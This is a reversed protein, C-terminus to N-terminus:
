NRKFVPRIKNGKLFLDPSGQQKALAVRTLGANVGEIYKELDNETHMLCFNNIGLTLVGKLICEQQFLSLWDSSDIGNINKFVIGSHPALGATRVDSSLNKEAILNNVSHIWKQGLTWIHQFSEKQEFLSITALASAISLTEGGFTMSIFAGEDILKMIDSAGTVLSLPMGNAIGKGFTALDPTVNYYEQAGGLSLRFGTVIEDFIILAGNKHALDKVKQLFNDKPPELGIPEMIVAAIQQPYRDFLTLLSNINNYKFKKTLKGIAKPVGRNRNTSAIYWDQYGHYGCCAIIERGTYARSLRVAASTADSGNKVFRVMEACPIIRIIKEALELELRHSLSFSIGSEMQKIISKNVGPHNYGVTVAGLSLVFDVFENDDVDWVHSGIGRSLFAPAAGECFYKYSKSYTQAASPILKKAQKLLRLSNDFKM